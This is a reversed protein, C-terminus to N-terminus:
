STTEQTQAIKDGRTRLSLFSFFSLVIAIIPYASKVQFTLFGGSAGVLIDLALSRPNFLNGTGWLVAGIAFAVFYLVELGLTCALIILGKRRLQWILMASVALLIPLVCNVFILLVYVFSFYRFGGRYFRMTMPFNGFIRSIAWSAMLVEVFTIVALTRMLIGTKTAASGAESHFASASANVSRAVFLSSTWAAIMVLPAAVLYGTHIQSGIVPIGIPLSAFSAWSLSAPGNPHSIINPQSVSVAILWFWEFGLICSLIFLSNRGLKWLLVASVALLVLLAGNLFVLASFLISFHPFSTIYTRRFGPVKPALRVIVWLCYLIQASTAIALVRPLRAGSIFPGIIRDPNM